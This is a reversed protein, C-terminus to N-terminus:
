YEEDIDQFIVSFSLPHGHTDVVNGEVDILQFWLQSYEPTGTIKVCDLLNAHMDHIMGGQPTNGIVVRRVIDTEGNVGLSQSSGSALNSRIFLQKYPQVDPADPATGLTSGPPPSFSSTLFSGSMFGCARNASRLDQGTLGPVVTLWDAANAKLQEEQWIRFIDTSVPTLLDIVLRNVADAYTVRYTGGIARGSNLAAALAEALRTVTYQGPPLVILRKVGAVNEDLYIRDCEGARVTYFNNSLLVVDLYCKGRVAIPYPLAIAFDSDSSGRAGQVRKRSDCYLKWPM